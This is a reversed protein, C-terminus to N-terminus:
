VMQKKKVNLMLRNPCSWLYVKKFETETKDILERLSDGSLFLSADYAYDTTHFYSSALYVDNVYIVFLLPGLISGQPVGCTIERIEYQFGNTCVYLKKNSLYNCLLSLPSGRIGYHRLKSILINHDISDFAKSLDLFTGCEFQKDEFVETIKNTLHM